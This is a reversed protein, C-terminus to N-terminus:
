RCAAVARELEELRRLRILRGAAMLQYRDAAGAADRLATDTDPYRPPPGLTHPVCGRAAHLDPAVVPAAPPPAVVVPAPATAVVPLPKPHTQCAALLLALALLARRPSPSM